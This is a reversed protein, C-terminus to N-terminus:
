SSKDIQISSPIPPTQISLPTLYPHQPEKRTWWRL